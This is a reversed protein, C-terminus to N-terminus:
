VVCGTRTAAIVIEACAEADSLPDHHNLPIGLHNCVSPLRTPYIGWTKRALKVTCVFRTDPRMVEAAECCAGLVGRDFRANHAALFDVGTLWDALTPWLEMFTPECAVQGWDIGHLYTFVFSKRPPRILYRERRVVRNAIVKVLGVACASDPEYDATEFDIAVFQIM